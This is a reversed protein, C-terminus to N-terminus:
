FIFIAENDGCTIIFCEDETNDYKLDTVNNHTIHIEFNNGNLYLYEENLEYDEIHLNNRCEVFPNTLITVISKNNSIAEEIKEKFLKVLKNIEKNNQLSCSVETTKILANM